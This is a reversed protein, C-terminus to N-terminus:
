NKLRKVVQVVTVQIGCVVQKLFIWYERFTNRINLISIQIPPASWLNDLLITFFKQTCEVWKDFCNNSSDYDELAYFTVALNKYAIVLNGLTNIETLRDGIEQVVVLRQQQYEIVKAYNKMANYADSLNGLANAEGPRDGIERALALGQQQYEIAKTYDGLAKYIDGLSRLAEGVGSHNEIEQDIILSQQQYDIAKAYDKLFYYATGINGLANGVGQRDGMERAIVLHQQQYELGKAYNRLSFFALGLNGLVKGEGIRNDIERDIALSQQLYMIAKIFNNLGRFTLGLNSLVVSEGYRDKIERAIILSQKLSEIAKSYNGLALYVSGLNGLIHGEGERDGIERVLTLEQQFSDIAKGYDAISDYVSGLGNLCIVDWIFNLKGLLRSYLNLREHPYGWLGLLNHLEANTVTNFETSFITVAREWDEVESLHHFAELYGRVKELNTDDPKSKYDTLWWEVASYNSLEWLSIETSEVLVSDIDLNAVVLQGPATFDVGEVSRQTKVDVEAFNSTM